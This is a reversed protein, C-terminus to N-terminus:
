LPFTVLELLPDTVKFSLHSLETVLLDAEVLYLLLAFLDGPNLILVLIGYIV